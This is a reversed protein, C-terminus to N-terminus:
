PATLPKARPEPHPVGERILLSFNEDHAYRKARENVLSKNMIEELSMGPMLTETEYLYEPVYGSLLIKWTYKAVGGLAKVQDLVQTTCNTTLTNYFSPTTHLANIRRVYELFLKRGNELAMRTRLVYVREEPDRYNTRVGIVDREDAVVYTLEYNRFFGNIASYSEGVEKRTEISFAVFDRNNFGFSVMVHAIAKGAWYTVLMDVETLEQVKFTRTDYHPDFDSESRYTFNRINHITVTDGDSVEAWPIKEVEPAWNRQNSPQINVWVVGGLCLTGLALPRVLRWRKWRGISVIMLVATVLAAPVRWGADLAPSYAFVLSVWSGLLLAILVWVGQLLARQM